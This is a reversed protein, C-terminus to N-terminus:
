YRSVPNEQHFPRRRRQRLEMCFLKKTECLMNM